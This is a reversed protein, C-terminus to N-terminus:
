LLATMNLNPRMRGPPLKNTINSIIVRCRMKRIKIKIKLPALPGPINKTHTFFKKTFSEYITFM